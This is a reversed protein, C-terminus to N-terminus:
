LEDYFQGFLRDADFNSIAWESTKNGIYKDKDRMALEIKECYRDIDYPDILNKHIYEPTTEKISEINSAIIPINMIMAEILSNPQGETISPFLFVDFIPLIRNVDDRYGLIIVRDRIEKNILKELSETDKGVLM